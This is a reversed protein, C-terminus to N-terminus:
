PIKTEFFSQIRTKISQLNTLHRELEISLVPINSENLQKKIYPYDMLNSDCFKLSFYVVSQINYEKIVKLLYNVRKDTNFLCASTIKNFYYDSIAEVPSGEVEIEGDYYKIGNSIDECVVMAGTKEIVEILNLHDFYSGCILVRHKQSIHEGNEENVRSLLNEMRSNFEEKFGTMGSQTISQMDSGSIVVKNEKRLNYLKQMKKRTGNFVEISKLLAEESIDCHFHGKIAEMFQLTQSRFFDRYFENQFRPLFFSFSFDPKLYHNWVDYLRRRSNCSDVVVINKEMFDYKGEIGEELCSLVYSCINRHLLTTANTSELSKEGTIRFPHIGAAHIIEEPTYISVWGIKPKESAQLLTYKNKQLETIKNILEQM